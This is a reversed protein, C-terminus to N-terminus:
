SLEKGGIVCWGIRRDGRLHEDHYAQLFNCQKHGSSQQHHQGGLKQSSLEDGVAVVGGLAGGVIGGVIGVSM